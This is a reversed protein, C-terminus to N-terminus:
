TNRGSLPQPRQSDRLIVARGQDQKSLIGDSGLFSSSSLPLLSFFSSFFPLFYPFLFFFLTAVEGGQLGEVTSKSVGFFKWGKTVKWLHWYHDKFCGDFILTKIRKERKKDCQISQLTPHSKMQSYAHSSFLYLPRMALFYPRANKEWKNIQDVCQSRQRIEAWQGFNITIHKISQKKEKAACIKAKASM